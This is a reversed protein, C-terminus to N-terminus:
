ILVNLVVKYGSAVLDNVLSSMNKIYSTGGPRPGM